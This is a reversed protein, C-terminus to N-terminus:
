SLQVGLFVARGTLFCRDKLIYEQIIRDVNETDTVDFHPHIGSHFGKDTIVTERQGSPSTRTKSRVKIGPGKM